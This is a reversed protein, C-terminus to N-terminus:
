SCSEFNCEYPFDSSSQGDLKVRRQYTCRRLSILLDVHVVLVAGTVTRIEGSVM